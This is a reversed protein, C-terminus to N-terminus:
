PVAKSAGTVAALTADDISDDDDRRRKGDPGVLMSLMEHESVATLRCRSRDAHLWVTGGAPRNRMKAFYLRAQNAEREDKTQNFTIVVDAEGAKQFAGAIDDLDSTQRGFGGKSTQSATWLALNNKDAVSRLDMYIDVLEDWKDRRKTPPALRDAYDVILLEPIFGTSSLRTILAEIDLIKTRRPPMYVIRIDGHTMQAAAQLTSVAMGIHKEFQREEMGTYRSAMRPGIGRIGDETSIFLVNHGSLHGGAALNILTFTKGANPPAVIVGLEKRRLGGHLQEDVSSILTPIAEDNRRGVWESLKAYDEKLSVIEIKEFRAIALAEQIAGIQEDLFAEDVGAGAKAARENFLVQLSVARLAAQRLVVKLRNEVYARSTAVTSQCITTIQDILDNRTVGTGDTPTYKHNCFDTLSITDPVYGGADDFASLMKVFERHVPQSFIGHHMVHGIDSWMNSNRVLMVLVQAEFAIDYDRESNGFILEHPIKVREWLNAKAM